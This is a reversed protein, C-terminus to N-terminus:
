RLKSVLQGRHLLGRLFWYGYSLHTAIVYPLTALAVTKKEFRMTDGVGLIVGILYMLLGLIVFRQMIV